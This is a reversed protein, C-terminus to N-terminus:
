ETAREVEDGFSEAGERINQWASGTAQKTSEWANASVDKTNEWAQALSQRTQNWWSEDYEPFEGMEDQSVDLHVEYEIDDWEGETGEPRVTFRGREAVVERGGMGLVRDTEIILSHVSMDDGLLLDEVEGVEDGNADFVEADMLDDASYLGEAATVSFSMAMAGALLCAGTARTLPTPM